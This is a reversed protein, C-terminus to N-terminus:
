ATPTRCPSSRTAAARTSSSGLCRWRAGPPWSPGQTAAGTAPDAYVLRFTRSPDDVNGGPLIITQVMAIGRGGAPWAMAACCEHGGIHKADLRFRHRWTGTAVDVTMLEVYGSSIGHTVLMAIRRSDPSWAWQGRSITEPGTLPGPVPLLRETGRALDRVRLAPRNRSKGAMVEWALKAGDPSIALGGTEAVSTVKEPTGGTLPLRYIGQSPLSSTYFIWRRDHSASYPTDTAPALSRIMEGTATSVVALDGSDAGAGGAIVTVFTEPVRGAVASAPITTPPRPQNVMPVSGARHLGLGLGIGGAVVLAGTVALAALRRYHRRGRRRIDTTAPQFAQEAGDTAYRMLDEKWRDEGM